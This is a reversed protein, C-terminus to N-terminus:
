KLVLFRYMLAPTLLDRWMEFSVVWPISLRKRMCSLEFIVGRQIDTVQYAFKGANFNETTLGLRIAINM